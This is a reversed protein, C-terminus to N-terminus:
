SDASKEPRLGRPKKGSFKWADRAPILRTPRSAARRTLLPPYQHAAEALKSSYLGRKEIESEIENRFRDREAVWQAQERDLWEGLEVGIGAECWIFDIPANGRHDWDASRMEWSQTELFATFVKSEYDARPGTANRITM